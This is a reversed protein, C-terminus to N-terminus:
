TKKSAISTGSYTSTPTQTAQAHAGRDGEDDVRHGARRISAEITAKPTVSPVNESCSPEVLVFLQIKRPNTAANATFAGSKGNWPRSRAAYM